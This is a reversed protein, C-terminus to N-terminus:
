PNLTFAKILKVKFHMLAKNEKKRKVKIIKKIHKWVRNIAKRKDSEKIAKNVAKDKGSQVM